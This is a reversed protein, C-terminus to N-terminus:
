FLDLIEKGIPNVGSKFFHTLEGSESIVYKCFNWSPLSSNWGNLNPNSLWQYIGSIPESKIKQKEALTFTVGYNLKCFKQIENASGPEQRGFDNCPIGIIELKDGHTEYLEQLDAYQDTYGCKSAVNVLLIKKGKFSELDIEDGNIDNLHLDYFSNMSNSYGGANLVSNLFLITALVLQLPLSVPLTFLLNLDTNRM